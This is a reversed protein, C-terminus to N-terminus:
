QSSKPGLARVYNVINWLDNIAMRSGYARMGTQKSGDRILVFMEGDTSGHKWEGDALNSPPPELMDGGKGDGKGAPGHCSSCQADYLKKGAAISAASSPVPNQLKAAEPHHHHDGDDHHQAAPASVLAALFTLASALSWLTPCSRM